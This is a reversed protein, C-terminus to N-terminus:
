KIKELDLDDIDIIEKEKTKTNEIEIKGEGTKTGIIGIFPAGLMYADNVKEGLTLNKRDDVIVNKGLKEYLKVAEEIKDDSAPIISLKYPAVNSYLSVGYVEGEENKLACQEYIVAVLRSVGIGYCGMYYPKQNGDKDTFSASMSDSYSTMLQFIHGVEMARREKLTSTDTIGYEERLYDEYNEKELVETNIAVKTKEDYLIVDDGIETLIMIEESKKGGILGNDAIVPCVELGLREGIKLYAERIDNYSKELGELDVDFSYADKMLFSKGRLLYGRNRIENRFKEGIQYYTVPMHRYSKLKERAFETIAEEATPALCYGGKDTEVTLMVEDDVYKQYRGSKKWIKDPQLVPMEVEICGIKNLEEEIIEQIKRKLLFPINGYGFIGSEFQYLQGTQLLLDQVPYLKDLNNIRMTGNGARSLKM